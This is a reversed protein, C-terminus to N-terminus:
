VVVIGGEVRARPILVRCRVGYSIGEIRAALVEIQFRDFFHPSGHPIYVWAPYAVGGVPFELGIRLIGFREPRGGGWNYDTVHDPNDIRLPKELRLNMTGDYCVKMEPVLEEFRVRQRPITSSAAGLGRVVEALIETYPMPQNYGGVAQSSLVVRADKDKAYEQGIM